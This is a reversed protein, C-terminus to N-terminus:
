NKTKVGATLEIGQMADRSQRDLKRLLGHVRRKTRHFDVMGPATPESACGIASMAAM